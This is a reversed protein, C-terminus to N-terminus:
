SAEWSEVVEADGSRDDTPRPDGIHLRGCRPCRAYVPQAPALWAGANYVPGDHCFACVDVSM